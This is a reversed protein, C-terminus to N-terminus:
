TPNGFGPKGSTYTSVAGMNIDPVQEAPDTAGPVDVVVPSGEEAM